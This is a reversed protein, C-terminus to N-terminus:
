SKVVLLRSPVRKTLASEFCSPPSSVSGVEGRPVLNVSSIGSQGAVVVHHGKIPNRQHRMYAAAANRIDAQPVFRVDLPRQRIDAKPHLASMAM